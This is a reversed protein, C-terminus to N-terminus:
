KIVNYNQIILQISKKGNYENIDPYFTIAIDVNNPRGNLMNSTQEKGYESEIMELLDQADNFCIGDLVSGLRDVLEM